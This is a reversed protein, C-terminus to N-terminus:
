RLNSFCHNGFARCNSLCLKFNVGSSVEFKLFVSEWIAQFQLLVIVFISLLRFYNLIISFLQFFNFFHFFHFFFSFFHIRFKGGPSGHKPIKLLPFDQWTKALTNETLSPPPMIMDLWLKTMYYHRYQGIDMDGYGTM